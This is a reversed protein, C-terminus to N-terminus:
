PYLVTKTERITENGTKPMEVVIIDRPGLCSEFGEQDLIEQPFIVRYSSETENFLPYYEGKFLYEKEIRFLETLKSVPIEVSYTRQWKQVPQGFLLLAKLKSAINIRVKDGNKVCKFTHGKYVAYTGMDM